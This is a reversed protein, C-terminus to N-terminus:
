QLWRSFSSFGGRFAISAVAVPAMAVPAMLAVAFAMAFVAMSSGSRFAMAFGDFLAMLLWQSFAM